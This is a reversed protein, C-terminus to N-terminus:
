EAQAARVGAAFADLWLAAYTSMAVAEAPTLAITRAYREYADRKMQAVTADGRSMLMARLGRQQAAHFAGELDIGLIRLIEPLEHGEDALADNAWAADSIKKLDLM